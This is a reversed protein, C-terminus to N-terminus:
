TIFTCMSENCLVVFINTYKHTGIKTCLIDIVEDSLFERFIKTSSYENFCLYLLHKEKEINM